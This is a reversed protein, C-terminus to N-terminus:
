EGKLKGYLWAKAYAWLHDAKRPSVGLAEAIEKITLGAFYRLKVMEASEPDDAELEKLAEDLDIFFRPTQKEAVESLEIYTRNLDGGRKQASKKRANEILIRRMAEAAAGFFHRRNEWQGAGPKVLQLYAEHVLATAQLTQGPREQQMRYNALRRLEQYVLPILENTSHARGAQIANLLQTVELAANPNELPNDPDSM